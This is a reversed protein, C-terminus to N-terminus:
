NRNPDPVTQDGQTGCVDGSELLNGEIKRDKTKRKQDRRHGRHKETQPRGPLGRVPVTAGKGRAEMIPLVYKCGLFVTKLNHDIQADWVEESMEVPGGPASGGVNNVLIDITGFQGICDHVAESVERAVTMNCVRASCTGGEKGILSRTEELPAQSLDTAFVKAGQRALLVATARGNGWGPGVSGAGAVFAIRGKLDHM